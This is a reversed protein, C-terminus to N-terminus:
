EQPQQPSPATTREGDRDGQQQESNATPETEVEVAAERGAELYRDLIEEVQQWVETGHRAAGGHTWDIRCDGEEIEPDEQVEVTGSFGARGAIRALDSQMSEGLGQPVHIVVRTEGFLRELCESALAEIPAAPTKKLAAGAVKEAIARALRVTEEISVARLGHHTTELEALREGVVGLAMAARREVKKEAEALAAARGDEFAAKRAMDLEAESFTPPPPPPANKAAEEAAKRAVEEPDVDFRRDFRFKVIESM